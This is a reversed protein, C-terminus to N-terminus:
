LLVSDLAIEIMDVLKNERDDSSIIKDTCKSDVVTLICAAKKNLRKAIHFLAFSEMETALINLSKPVRNLIAKWDVYPDFVDCTLVNGKIIKKNKSLAAKEINNNLESSSSELNSKEKSFIYAYNSETYSKDVLIIDLLDISKLATGCSGIRIIKEVDYFKYLEFFYIGAGAMGMGHGMVTIKTDKYYGTFALMGRVKNVLKVDKLYNKAIFEARLPDGSMIVIKSIEEKKAEIHPTM